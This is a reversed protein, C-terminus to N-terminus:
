SNRYNFSRFAHGNITTTFEGVFFGLWRLFRIADARRSDVSGTLWPFSFLMSDLERRAIRALIRHYRAYNHSRYLWPSGADDLFGVSIVGFMCLVRDRSDVVSMSRTSGHLKELLVQLPPMVSAAEIEGRDESVLAEALHVCDVVTAPRLAIGAEIQRRRTSVTAGFGAM